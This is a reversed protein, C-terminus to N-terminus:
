KFHLSNYFETHDYNDVCKTSCCIMDTNRMSYVHKFIYKTCTQCFSENMLEQLVRQKNNKSIDSILENLSEFMIHENMINNNVIM